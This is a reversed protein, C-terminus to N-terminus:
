ILYDLSLYKEIGLFHLRSRPGEALLESLVQMGDITTFIGIVHEDEDLVVACGYKMKAMEKAVAALPTGAKVCYPEAAMVDAVGLKVRDSLAVAQRLDRESVVGVVKGSELVPLHRIGAAKMTEHAVAAPTEKTTVYPRPTMRNEISNVRKM